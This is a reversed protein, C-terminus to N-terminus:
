EEDLELVDGDEAIQEMAGDAILYAEGHLTEHGDESLVYSGDPLVLFAHDVSDPIAIDEFLDLGDLTDGAITNYHPIINIDTLGLGPLFREYDPDVAEGELEPHSYVTDASNMSGASIGMLVGDFDALLARLGIAQFFANQTPVHGGCLIILDANEILAAADDANRGDLVEFETFAFGAKEMSEATGEAYQDTTEWDDPDSCAYLARCPYPVALHLQHIFGNAPNLDLTDPVMPSSTFFCTM